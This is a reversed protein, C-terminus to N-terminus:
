KQGDEKRRAYYGASAPHHFVSKRYERRRYRAWLVVFAICWVGAAVGLSFNIVTDM